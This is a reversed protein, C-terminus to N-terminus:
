PTISVELAFHHYLVKIFMCKQTSILIRVSTKKLPEVMNYESHKMLKLFKRAKDESIPKNIEM